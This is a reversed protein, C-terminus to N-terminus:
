GHAAATKPAALNMKLVRDESVNVGTKSKFAILEEKWSKWGPHHGFYCNDLWIELETPLFDTILLAYAAYVFMLPVAWANGFIICVGAAIGLGGLVFYLAADGYRDNALFDITKLMDWVGAVLSLIGGFVRSVAGYFKSNKLTQHLGIAWSWQRVHALLEVGVYIIDMVAGAFTLAGAYYMTKAKFYDPGEKIGLEELKELQYWWAVTVGFAMITGVVAYGSRFWLKETIVTRLHRVQMEETLKLQSMKHEIELVGLEAAVSKDLSEMLLNSAKKIQARLESASAEGAEVKDMVQQLSEQMTKIRAQRETAITKDVDLQTRSQELTSREAELRHQAATNRGERNRLRMEQAYQTQRAKLLDDGLRSYAKEASATRQQANAYETEGRFATQASDEAAIISRALEQQQGSLKEVLLDRKVRNNHADLYLPIQEGLVVFSDLRLARGVIRTDFEQGQAILRFRGKVEQLSQNATHGPTADWVAQMDSSVKVLVETTRNGHPHNKFMDKSVDNGFVRKFDKQIQKIGGKHKIFLPPSGEHAFVLMLIHQANSNVPLGGAYQAAINALPAQIGAMLKGLPKGPNLKPLKKVAEDFQQTIAALQKKLVENYKQNAKLKAQNQKDYANAIRADEHAGPEQRKALDSTQASEDFKTQLDNARTNAGETVGQQRELNKATQDVKRQARGVSMENLTVRAEGIAVAANDLHASTQERNITGKLREVAMENKGIDANKKDLEMQLRLTEDYAAMAEADAKKSMEMLKKFAKDTETFLKINLAADKMFATHATSQANNYADWWAWAWDAIFKAIKRRTPVDDEADLDVAKIENEITILTSVFDKTKNALMLRNVNLGMWILNNEDLPSEIIEQYSQACLPFDGSDGICCQLLATYPGGHERWGVPDDDSSDFNCVFYDVMGQSKFWAIHAKALTLITKESLENSKKVFESDKGFFSNWKEVSLYKEWYRETTKEYDERMEDETVILPNKYSKSPADPAVLPIKARATSIREKSQLFSLKMAEMVCERSMLPHIFAEQARFVEVREDMMEALSMAIGPADDLALIMGKGEYQASNKGKKDVRAYFKEFQFVLSSFYENGKRKERELMTENSSNFTKQLMKQMLPNDSSPSSSNMLGSPTPATGSIANTKKAQELRYQEADGMSLIKKSPPTVPIESKKPEPEESESKRPIQVSTYDWIDAIINQGEPLSHICMSHEHKKSSLYEKINIKRMHRSRFSEDENLKLLRKTWKTDSYGIWVFDAKEAEPITICRALMGNKDPLCPAQKRDKECHPCPFIDFELLHKEETVMYGRWKKHSDNPNYVYVYGGRLLRLTYRASDGLEPTTESKDAAKVVAKFDGTLAPAIDDILFRPPESHRGYLHATEKPATSAVAYRTLFIPLGAEKHCMACNECERPKTEAM